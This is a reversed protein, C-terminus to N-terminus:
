SEVSQHSEIQGNYYLPRLDVVGGATREVHGIVDSSRYAADPVIDM